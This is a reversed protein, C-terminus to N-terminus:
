DTAKFCELDDTLMGIAQLCVTGDPLTVRYLGPVTGLWGLRQANVIPEWEAEPSETYQRGTISYVVAGLCFIVVGNIALRLVLEATSKKTESM